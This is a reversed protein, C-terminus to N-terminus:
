ACWAYEQLQYLLLLGSFLLCSIKLDCAQYLDYLFIWCSAVM